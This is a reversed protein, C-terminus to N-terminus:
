GAASSSFSITLTEYSWMATRGGSGCCFLRAASSRVPTPSSSTSCRARGAPSSAAERRVKWVGPRISCPSIAGNWHQRMSPPPATGGNARYQRLLAIGDMGPLMRDLIALDYANSSLAYLGSEGDGCGDASFGQAALLGLLLERQAANDEIVLIRM